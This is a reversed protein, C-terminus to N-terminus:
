RSTQWRKILECRCDVYKESHQDDNGDSAMFEVTKESVYGIIQGIRVRQGKVAVCSDLMSYTFFLKGSKIMVARYDDFKVVAVTEGESASVVISDEGDINVSYNPNGIFMREGIYKKLVGDRMPCRGKKRHVPAGVFGVVALAVVVIIAWRGPGFITWPAKRSM